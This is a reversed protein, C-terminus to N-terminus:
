CKQFNEWMDILSESDQEPSSLVGKYCEQFCSWRQDKIMTPGVASLWIGMSVDEGQYRKLSDANKAIWHVLDASLVSGAGCAFTPYTVGPYDPEAWKGQREILWDTRFSGWWIKSKNRLKHDDIGQLIGQLDVFCDDDTKLVFSFSVNKTIWRFFELLQSPLNRYVDVNPVFIIDSYKRSEKYLSFSYEEQKLRKWEAIRNKRQEATLKMKGPAPGHPRYMFTGTGQLCNKEPFTEEIGPFIGVDKGFRRVKLTKFLGGNDQITVFEECKKCRPSVCAANEAVISAQFGKPLVYNPVTKFWSNNVLVGPSQVTFHARVIEKKTIRDYLRLTTEEKLGNVSVGLSTIVIPYLVNFDIGVSGEHHYPLSIDEPVQYAILEKDFDIDKLGDKECRYPDFRFEPPIPCSYNSIIFKILIRKKLSSHHQAHGVWTQRLSERLYFNGRASLIGVVLDYPQEKDISNVNNKPYNLLVVHLLFFLFSLCVDHFNIM